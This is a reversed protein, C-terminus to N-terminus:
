PPRPHCPLAHHRRRDEVLQQALHRLPCLRVGRRRWRGRLGRRGRRFRFFWACRGGPAAVSGVSRAAPGWTGGGPRGVERSVWPCWPCRSVGGVPWLASQSWQRAVSGVAGHGARWLASQRQRSVRGALWRASQGRALGGCRRNVGSAPRRASQGRGPRSTESAPWLASQVQWRAMLGIARAPGGCLQSVRAPRGHCGTSDAPEGGLRGIRAPPWLVPQDRQRGRRWSVGGAPLRRPLAKALRTRQRPHPEADQFAREPREVEIWRHDQRPKEDRPPHPRTLGAERAGSACRGAGVGRTARGSPRKPSLPSTRFPV